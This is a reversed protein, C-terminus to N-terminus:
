KVGATHGECITWPVGGTAPDPYATYRTGEWPAVFAAAITIALGALGTLVRKM